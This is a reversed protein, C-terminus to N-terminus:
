SARTGRQIFAPPPATEEMLSSKIPRPAGFINGQGFPIDYALIDVVSAEDEMKEAILTVGYRSFVASVDEGDLHRQISCIPRSGNPNRLEDLLTAGNMKVFRVGADQLRPLDVVLGPAHDVSFRFGLGVLQDMNERMKRSRTEFRDSRLEFIIAGALDRNERMHRLFNPFFDEDELSATSINCFVGVRRDRDALKRVIQVCRFLTMNDIMGMLNSRRAADLFEAPMILAGDATRLRTFGEYFAVRRQPLSVIPQLHLDVRGEELAAKVARLVADEQPAVAGTQATGSLRNEFNASLREILGELQRMESILADRRETLEHKVTTEVADTRAEIVKMREEVDKTVKSTETMKAEIDALKKKPRAFFLHIQGLVLATLVGGGAAIPFTQGAHILLAWGAGAGLAIYILFLFAAMNLEGLM